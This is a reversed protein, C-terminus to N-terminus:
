DFNSVDSLPFNVEDVFQYGEENFMNEMGDEQIFTNM